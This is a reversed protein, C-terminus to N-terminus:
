FPTIVTLLASSAATRGSVRRANSRIPATASWGSSCSSPRSALRSSCSRVPRAGIWAAAVAFVPDRLLIGVAAAIPAPNGGGELCGIRRQRFEASGAIAGVDQPCQPCAADGHCAAVVARVQQAVGREGADREGAVLGAGQHFTEGITQVAGADGDLTCQKVDAIKSDLADDYDDDLPFMCIREGARRGAAVAQAALADSTAFAGTYRNGLAVHMSGTLTAFDVMLDPKKRSALTLTDALVMRGEADTHTVEITTGNLARVVENQHYARPSIDNRSIAM